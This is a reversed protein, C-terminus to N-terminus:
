NPNLAHGLLVGVNLYVNTKLASVFKENVTYFLLSLSGSTEHNSIQFIETKRM